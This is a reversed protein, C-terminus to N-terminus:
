ESSADSWERWGQLLPFYLAMRVPRGESKRFVAAYRELQSRYRERERDLFAEMDGGTHSSTKYDIVWRVGREDIFTRDIVLHQFEGEVRSTIGLECRAAQHRASLIWRGRQDSLTNGLADMVRQRAQDLESASLGEAALM